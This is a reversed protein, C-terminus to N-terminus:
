PIALEKAARDRLAIKVVKGTSNRPLADIERVHKPKKYSAIMTRCHEILDAESASQGPQFTVYAFVSEGFEPDPVPLVAAENVAPHAELAAEVERSYINLGGSVIMDKARDVFYVYGDEEMRALDGTRLWGEHFAAATAEPNRWYSPMSLVGPAGCRCIIEGIEGRPLDNMNEDVIRVEVSPVPRGCSDPHSAQEEPRLGTIFGAETQAYFTYLGINPASAALRKKIDVPFAEGTAVM